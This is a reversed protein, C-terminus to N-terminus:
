LSLICIAALLNLTGALRVVGVFGLSGILIWGSVGAGLGAGLTNVAYLRGVLPGADEIREVVGRSVLPLSLGMLTTPVILLLFHFGFAALTGHLHPVASRYVDYFLWLSFWAFLGIGVNSAAFALLSRRPGLRDAVVGGLLSGVGLGTLFAAIVTTFSFLDVGAHLSIVRQWVVQLTLASFGTVAFVGFLVSRQRSHM